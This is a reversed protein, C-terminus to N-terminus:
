VTAKPIWAFAIFVREKMNYDKAFGVLFTAVWRFCLGFIFVGVGLLLHKLQVETIRIAAGVTGFLLPMLVMWVYELHIEPKHHKWICHLIYGFLIIGIYKSEHFQILESGVGIFTVVILCFALRFWNGLKLWKLAFGGIAGLVM